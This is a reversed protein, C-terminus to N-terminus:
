CIRATTTEDFFHLRPMDLYLPMMGSPAALRESSVRASYRAEGSGASEGDNLVQMLDKGVEPTPLDFHLYADPGVLESIMIDATITQSQDGQGQPELAFFEPRMGMVVRAGAHAALAQFVPTNEPTLRLRDDTGPIHATLGQDDRTLDAYVFNMAPSGIFGAVFMNCPELYLKQPSDCQQLNSLQGPAHPSLVAVRDGLTMAEVQDHTVYVTTVGLRKRLLKLEARMQVRLKADLNSLPEDMLYITPSRVIARGMAVRQRQGGSLAGPKRDILPELDLIRAANMVMERAEGAPVKRQQLGFMMNDFVTMHPYLAYNQFVMAVDRDKPDVDSVDRDGLFVRGDTLSELGAIMRLLTSKGCGSPGVLVLFEGDEVDISVNSIARVEGYKKGVNDITLSAM